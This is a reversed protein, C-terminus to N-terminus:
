DNLIILVFTWQGVRMSEAGSEANVVGATVAIQLMTSCHVVRKRPSADCVSSPQSIASSAFDPIRLRLLVNKCCIPRLFSNGYLRQSRVFVCCSFPFSNCFKSARISAPISVFHSMALLTSMREHHREKSKIPITRPAGM